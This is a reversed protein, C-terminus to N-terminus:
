EGPVGPLGLRAEFLGKGPHEKVRVPYSGNFCALCYGRYGQGVTEVLGELSLYHLSDAGVLREIEEM